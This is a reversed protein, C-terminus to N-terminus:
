HRSGSLCNQTEYEMWSMKFDTKTKLKKDNVQSDVLNLLLKEYKLNKFWKKNSIKKGRKQKWGFNREVHSNGTKKCFM